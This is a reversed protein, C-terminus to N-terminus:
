IPPCITLLHEANIQLECAIHTFHESGDIIDDTCGDAVPNHVFYDHGLSNARSCAVCFVTMQDGDHIHTHTHKSTIANGVIQVKLGMLLDNRRLYCNAVRM